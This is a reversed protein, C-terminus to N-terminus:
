SATGSFEYYFIDNNKNVFIFIAVGEGDDYNTTISVPINGYIDLSKKLISFAKKHIQSSSLENRNGRQLRADEDFQNIFDRQNTIFLKM